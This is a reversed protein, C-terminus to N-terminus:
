STSASEEQVEKKRYLIGVPIVICYGIFLIIPAVTVSLASTADGMAMVIYGIIVVAIGVLIITYNITQPLETSSIPAVKKKGRRRNAQAKAM